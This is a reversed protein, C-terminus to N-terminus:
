AEVAEAIEVTTEVKDNFILNFKLRTEGEKIKWPKGNFEGESDHDAIVLDLIFEQSSLKFGEPILIYVAEKGGEKILKLMPQGKASRLIGGFLESTVSVVVTQAVTWVNLLGKVSQLMAATLVIFKSKSM